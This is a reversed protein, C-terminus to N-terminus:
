FRLSLSLKVAINEKFSPLGYAGYRYFAGIGIGTIGRLVLLNNVILGSEFFGKEMTKFPLGLHHNKDKLKGWAANTTIVFEPKFKKGKFLLNQFNHRFFLTVYRDSLFENMQMTEFSNLSALFSRPRNNTRSTFLLAYPVPRDVYGAWICLSPKGLTKLTFTKDVKFDFKNYNYQGGLFGNIGRTYQLYFIPYETGLSALIKGTDFLKEKYAFRASVGAEVFTYNNTAPAQGIEYFDSIYNYNYKAQVTSHNAFAVFRLYGPTRFSLSVEGKNWFDMKSINVNRIRENYSLLRMGMIEPMGSEFVDSAWSAKLRVDANKFIRVSADAGWKFGKDKFGYGFYAGVNVIRSFTANTHFGLGLRIGEYLNYRILKNLDLDIKKIPIRGSSLTFFSRIKKDLNNAKGVSDIVTYTRQEKDDLSDPRHKNWFGEKQENAETELTLEIQSFESRKLGPEIKIDTLYTRGIGILNARNFSSNKFILDTNLQVPFWKKGEILEYKQQVRIGINEEVEPGALVNQIAYGNTNIYLAGKLGNFNKGSRPQFSIVYISDKGEYLTDELTFLYKNEINKSVPNIYVKDFLEIVERYFTFSQLQTALAMFTPDKFGSARIGTIYENVLNPERFKKQTVTELLFLHNQEFFRIMKQQSTDGKAKNLSDSNATIILKNYSTYSYSALQEPDNKDRNAVAKKIINIAPNPGAKVVVEKLQIDKKKLLVNTLSAENGATLVVSKPEYGVYSFTIIVPLPPVDLKFRGEIDSSTAINTGQVGISVFALPARNNVDVVRGKLMINQAHVTSLFFLFLILGAIAGKGLYWYKALPACPVGERNSLSCPPFSSKLSFFNM